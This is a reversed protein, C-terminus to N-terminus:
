QVGSSLTSFKVTNGAENSATVRVFIKRGLEFTSSIVLNRNDFGTIAVCTAPVVTATSALTTAGTCSYWNYAYTQGSTGSWTGLNASVTKGRKFGNLATMTPAATNIPKVLIPGVSSTFRASSRESTKNAANTATIKAIIFNGQDANVPTYTGTTQGTIETCGTPLTASDASQEAECSYWKYAYGTSAVSPTAVWTGNTITLKNTASVIESGTIFPAATNVPTSSVALSSASTITATGADNTATALVALYKGTLSTGLDYNSATASEDLSCDSPMASLGAEVSTECIFWQYSITPTQVGSATANVRLLREDDHAVGSISPAASFTPAQLVQGLSASYHTASGAGPKNTATLVTVGALVHKGAQANTLVFTSGTAGAISVCGAVLSSAASAITTDCAYWQYSYTANPANTWDGDSVSVTSATKATGTAVPAASNSPTATVVLTSSASATVPAVNTSNSAKYQVTIYKGIASDTVDLTNDTEGAMVTCSSALTSGSSMSFDCLYWQKSITPTEVGVVTPAVATLTEGAHAYGSIQPASTIAAPQLVEGVSASFRTASDAASKNTSATAKAAVLLHKGAQADTPSFTASTAGAIVTCGAGLANAAAAIEASCAYWAYTIAPNAPQSSWSGATASLSAGVKLAGSYSITPAETNVPSATVQASTVSVKFSTKTVGLVTNTATFAVALYKSSASSPVTLTNAAAGPIEACDTPLATLTAAIQSDCAYWKLGLSPTEFGVVTPTPATITSGVHATVSSIFPGVNTIEAPRLIKSTSTSTKSAPVQTLGSTTNVYNSASALALIYKGAQTNTATFTSGTAGSILTCGAPATDVAATIESTCAYWAFGAAATPTPYGSWTAGSVTLVEGVAANGALTPPATNRVAERVAATSISSTYAVGSANTGVMQAVVYKGNLASTLSLNYRSAGEILACNAQPTEASSSVNAASDCAFWRYSVAPSETGGWFSSSTSTIVLTQGVNHPVAAMTMPNILYPKELIKATPASYAYATNEASGPAGTLNKAAQGLIIYRGALTINSIITTSPQRAQVTRTLALTNGTANVITACRPDTQPNPVSSVTCAYWVNSVTPTPTGRWTAQSTISITEEIVNQSSLTPSTVKSPRENVSNSTATWVAFSGATNTATVRLSLYKNLQSTTPTFVQLTAGSIPSCDAPATETVYTALASDCAYWLYSFTGIESGRWAGTAESTKTWEPVFGSATSGVTVYKSVTPPTAVGGSIWLSPKEKIMSTSAALRTRVLRPRTAGETLLYIDELYTVYRGAVNSNGSITFSTGTVGDIEVCGDPEYSMTTAIRNTCSLWYYRASVTAGAQQWVGPTGTITTPMLGSDTASVTIASENVLDAAVKDTTSASYATTQGALNTATIAALLYPHTTAGAQASTPAFSKSTAGEITRCGTPAQDGISSSAIVSLCEYWQYDATYSPSADWVDEDALISEGVALLSLIKIVPASTNRPKRATAQDAQVAVVYSTTVASAGSGTSGIVQATIFRADDVLAVQTYTAENAGDIVDCYSPLSNSVTAAIAESCSLWQYTIAPNGDWVGPDATLVEGAVRVGSVAPLTTAVPVFQVELTSNTWQTITEVSNAGTTTGVLFKGRDDVTVRYSSANAGSIPECGNAEPAVTRQASGETLEVECRYWQYSVRTAPKQEAWRATINWVDKIRPGVDSAIDATTSLTPKGTHVPPQAVADTSASFSTITKAVGDVTNTETVSYILYPRDSGVMTAGPTFTNSTATSIAKCDNTAVLAYSAAAVKKACRYWLRKISPQPYGRWTGDNVQIAQDVKPASLVTAHTVNKVLETIIASSKAFATSSGFENTGIVSAMLANGSDEEGLIYQNTTAGEIPVCSATIEDSAVTTSKCRYWQYTLQVAPSGVWTGDTLTFKQVKDLVFKATGTQVPVVKNVPGTTIKPSSISYTTESGFANSAVTKAVLYKDLYGAPIVFKAASAGTVPDCNAALTSAAADVQSDCVFWAYTKTPAPYALWEDNKAKVTGESFPAGNVTASTEPKIVPAMNVVTTTASYHVTDLSGNNATVKMMLFKGRDEAVPTYEDETASAIFFCNPQAIAPPVPALYVPDVGSDKTVAIECRLWQYTKTPTPNGFWEGGDTKIKTGVVPTPVSGDLNTIKPAVKIVPGSQVVDSSISWAPTSGASNKATIRIVLYKGIQATTSKFVPLKAGAIETCGAPATVPIDQILSDCALWQHSITPAPDAIWDDVTGQATMNDGVFARGSLEPEKINEPVRNVMNTSASYTTSAGLQNRGTVAVLLYNGYDDSRISYTKAIEGDLAVCGDSLEPKATAIKADCSFWQYGFNGVTKETTTPSTPKWTGDDATLLVDVAEIIPSGDPQRGAPLAAKPAVVNIAGYVVPGKTVSWLTVDGADNLAKVASTLYKGEMAATVLLEAKAGTQVVCGAPQTTTAETIAASCLWWSSTFTPAPTGAWAGALTNLKADVYAYGSITQARTNEPLLVVSKTTTPSFWEEYSAKNTGLVRFGVFKSVLDRTVTYTPGTAGAIDACNFYDFEQTANPNTIACSFWQLEFTPAPSGTWTGTVADLRSGVKPAGTKSAESTAIGVRMTKTSSVYKAPSAVPGKTASFVQSDVTGNSGTVRVLVYKGVQKSTLSLYETVEGAIEACGAPLGSSSVLQPTTCTMWQYFYQMPTSGSWTGSNAFITQEVVDSGVITPAVTNAPKIKVPGYGKSFAFAGTPKAENKATAKVRIISGSDARTVLYTSGTAGPIPFCGLPLDASAEGLSACKFWTYEVSPTPTGTATATAQLLSEAWIGGSITPWPTIIPNSIVQRTSATLKKASGAANTITVFAAIYKSVDAAQLTYGGTAPAGVILTCTAPVTAQAVALMSSCRYWQNTSVATPLGETAGTSATVEDGVIRVDDLIPDNLYNPAQYVQDGSKSWIVTDGVANSATVRATLYKGVDALTATYTKAEAGEVLSCGTPLSTKNSSVAPSCRLWQYAFTPAPYGSWTGQDATVLGGIKLPSISTKPAALSILRAIGEVVTTSASYRVVSGAENTLTARLTVYKAEDTNALQYESFTEDGIAGCTPPLASTATNSISCSFWQYTITVGQSASDASANANLLEGNRAIGTITPDTAFVPKSVVAKTAASWVSVAGATNTGTERVSIFKGQLSSGIALTASRAGSVEVCTDPLSSAAAEVALDCAFWQFAKTTADISTAWTGTKATLTTGSIPAGTSSLPTSSTSPAVSYNPLELIRRSSASYTKSSGVSNTATVEAVLFKGKLAAAPTLTKQTQGAIAVCGTKVTSGATVASACSFWRYSFNADPLASWTGEQATLERGVIFGYDSSAKTVTPASSVAPVQMVQGLSAIYRVESAVGTKNATVKATIYKGVDASDSAGVLYSNTSVGSIQECGSPADVSGEVASDCRFWQYQYTFGTAAPWSNLVVTLKSNLTSKAAVFRINSGAGLPAASLTPAAAVASVSSASYASVPSASGTADNSAAVESVIYKGILSSTPSLTQGSQGVILTCGAATPLSSSASDIKSACAWWRNTLVPTPLGAWTGRLATLARGIEAEGDNISPLVTAFPSSTVAASTATYLESSGQDNTVRVRGVLYKGLDSETVTHTSASEDTLQVCGDALVDSSFAPADCAYWQYSYRLTASGSWTGSTVKLTTSNSSEAIYRPAGNAGYSSGAEITLIPSTTSWPASTVQESTASYSYLLDTASITSNTAQVRVLVNKGLQARALDLSSTTQGSIATCGTPLSNSASAQAACAFWQYNFTPSPTAAWSGTSANLTSNVSATGSVAPKTTNAPAEGVLGTSTSWQTASDDVGTVTVAASIAKGVTAKTVTFTNSTAGDIPSCGAPQSSSTASVADCAFWQYTAAATDRNLWTGDSVTFRTSSTISDPAVYRPKGDAGNTGTSASISPATRNSTIVQFGSVDLLKNSSPKLSNYFIVKGTEASALIAASVQAPTDTPHLAIYLAAAGAVHPTAMSTGSMVASGTPNDFDLSTVNVGPAFIDVCAGYNSFYGEHFTQDIAGVTIAAPTLAPTVQCADKTENGAAVVVVIGDAIANNIATTMAASNGLDSSGLSMNIVARTGAPNDSIAWDIASLVFSTSGSGQCTGFSDLAKLPVIKAQKAVGYTASAISGAVHTGHGNCDTTSGSFTFDRGALLRSGLQTANAAVGTDIVYVKVGSGASDPYIYQADTPTTTQDLMSLNWNASPQTTDISIPADESVKAAPILTEVAAIQVDTLSLAFGDLANTFTATPELGLSDVWRNLESFNSEPVQVIVKKSIGVSASSTPSAIAFTPSLEGVLLTVITVMGLAFKRTFRM